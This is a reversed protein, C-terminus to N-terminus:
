KIKHIKVFSESLYVNKSVRYNGQSDRINLSIKERNFWIANVKEKVVNPNSLWMDIKFTCFWVVSLIIICILIWILANIYKFLKTKYFHTKIKVETLVPCYRFCYRGFTTANPLSVSKLTLCNYFCYSGVETVNENHFVGNIFDENSISILKLGNKLKETKM